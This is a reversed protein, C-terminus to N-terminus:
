PEPNYYQQGYMVGNTHWGTILARAVYRNAESGLTGDPKVPWAFRLRVDHIQNTLRLGGGGFEGVGGFLNTGGFANVRELPDMVHNLVQYRFGLDSGRSAVGGSIASFVITHHNIPDSLLQILVSTPIGNVPVPVDNADNTIVVFSGLDSTVDRGGSKIAELLVRADQNIITEERNDKQVQLGAPLIGIIAILAFAIVGLAIAIEAM